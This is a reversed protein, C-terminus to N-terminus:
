ARARAPSSSRRAPRRPSLPSSSRISNARTILRCIFPLIIHSLSTNARCPPCNLLYFAFPFLFFIVPSSKVSPFLPLSPQSACKNGENEETLYNPQLVYDRSM